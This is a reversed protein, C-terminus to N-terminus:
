SQRGFYWVRKNAHIKDDNKLTTLMTRISSINVSSKYKSEIANHLSATDFGKKNASLAALIKEDLTTKNHARKKRKTVTKNGANSTLMSVVKNLMAVAEDRKAKKAVLQSNLDDIEGNLNTIRQKLQNLDIDTM